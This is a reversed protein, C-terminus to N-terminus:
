AAERLRPQDVEGDMRMRYYRQPPPLREERFTRDIASLIADRCDLEQASGPV